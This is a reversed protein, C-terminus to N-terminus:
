LHLGRSVDRGIQASCHHRLSAVMWRQRLGPARRAEPTLLEWVQPFTDLVEVGLRDWDGFPVVVAFQAPSVRLVARLFHRDTRFEASLFRAALGCHRGVWLALYVDQIGSALDPSYTLLEHMLYTGDSRTSDALALVVMSLEDM